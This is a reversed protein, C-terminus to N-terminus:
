IAVTAQVGPKLTITGVVRVKKPDLQRIRITNATVDTKTIKFGHAIAWQHATRTTFQDKAFILSQIRSGKKPNRRAVSRVDDLVEFAENVGPIVDGVIRRTREEGLPMTLRQGAALGRRVGGVAKQGAAIAKKGVRKHREVQKKARQRVDAKYRSWAGNKRREKRLASVPWRKTAGHGGADWDVSVWGKAFVKRVTGHIRGVGDDASVRDNVQLSTRAHKTARRTKKRRKPKKVQFLDEVWARITAVVTRAM